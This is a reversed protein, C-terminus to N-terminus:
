PPAAHDERTKEEEPQVQPVLVHLKPDSDGSAATVAAAAREVTASAREVDPAVQRIAQELAGPATQQQESRQIYQMLKAANALTANVAAILRTLEATNDGLARTNGDVTRRFADRETLAERREQAQGSVAASQLAVLQNISETLKSIQAANAAEGANQGRLRAMELAHTRQREADTNKLEALQADFATQMAKVSRTMYSRVILAALSGAATIATGALAIWAGVNDGVGAGGTDQALAAAPLMLGLGLVGILGVTRGVGM